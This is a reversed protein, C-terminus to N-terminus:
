HSMRGISIKVCSRKQCEMQHPMGGDRNTVFDTVGLNAVSKEAVISLLVCSNPLPLTCLAPSLDSVDLHGNQGWSFIKLITLWVKKADPAYSLAYCPFPKKRGLTHFQTWVCSSGPAVCTCSGQLSLKDHSSRDLHCCWSDRGWFHGNHLRWNTATLRRFLWKLAAWM